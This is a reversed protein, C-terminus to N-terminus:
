HLETTADRLIKIMGEFGVRHLERKIDVDLKTSARHVAIFRVFEQLRAMAQEGHRILGLNLRFGKYTASEKGSTGYLDYVLIIPDHGIAKPAVKLIEVSQEPTLIFLSDKTHATFLTPVYDRVLKSVSHNWGTDILFVNFRKVEDTLPEDWQTAQLSVKHHTHHHRHDHHEGTESM